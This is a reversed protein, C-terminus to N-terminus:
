PTDSLVESETGDFFWDSYAFQVAYRAISNQDQWNLPVDAIATPFADRLVITKIPKGNEKYVVINIDTVYDERYAVEFPAKYDSLKNITFIGKSLNFNVISQMWKYITAHVLASNDAYFIATIDQFNNITPHKEIHGIGYRRVEHTSINIGPESIQECLFEIDKLVAGPIMLLKPPTFTMLFKNTRMLGQNRTVASKFGEINFGPM